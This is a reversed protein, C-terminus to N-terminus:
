TARIKGFPQCSLLRYLGLKIGKLVGFNNIAQKTYDSCSVSYRCRSGLVVTFIPSLAVQYLSIFFIVIQRM